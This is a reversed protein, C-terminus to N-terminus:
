KVASKESPSALAILGNLHCLALSQGEVEGCVGRLESSMHFSISSRQHDTDCISSSHVVQLVGNDLLDILPHGIHGREIHSYETPGRFGIRHVTASSKCILGPAKQASDNGISLSM